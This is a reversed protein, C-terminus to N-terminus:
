SLAMSQVRLRGGDGHRLTNSSGRSREADRHSAMFEMGEEGESEAEAERSAKRRGLDAKRM